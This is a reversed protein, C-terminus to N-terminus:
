NIKHTPVIASEYVGPIAVVYFPSFPKRNEYRVVKGIVMSGRHAVEVKTGPKLIKDDM